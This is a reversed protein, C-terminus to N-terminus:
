GYGGVWVRRWIRGCDCAIREIVTESCTTQDVLQCGGARADCICPMRATRRANAMVGLSPRQAVDTM